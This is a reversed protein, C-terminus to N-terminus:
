PSPTPSSGPRPSSGRSPPSPAAAAAAIGRIVTDLLADAFRHDLDGHGTLLRHFIPGYIADITVEVDIDARVEGAAVARSLLAAADRRRPEQVAERFAALIESCHQGCAIIQRLIEGDPGRITDMVNRLQTRLDDLPSDTRPFGVRLEVANLYGEMLVAEKSPWWRYITAKSVGAASALSDMSIERLGVRCLLLYAADLIARRSAESRPRGPSRREEPNPADM